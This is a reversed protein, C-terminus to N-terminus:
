SIWLSVPLLAGTTLIGLKSVPKLLRLKTRL